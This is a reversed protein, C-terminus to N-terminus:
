RKQVRLEMGLKPRRSGEPAVLGAGLLGLRTALIGEHDDAQVIDGGVDVRPVLNVELSSPWLAASDIRQSPYNNQQERQIMQIDSAAEQGHGGM